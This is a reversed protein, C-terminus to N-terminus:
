FLTMQNKEGETTKGTKSKIDKKSKKVKGKKFSNPSQAYYFYQYAFKNERIFIKSLNNVIKDINLTYQTRLNEVKVSIFGKESLDEIAKQQRTRKLGLESQIRSPVVADLINRQHYGIFYELLLVEDLSIYKFNYKSLRNINLANTKSM